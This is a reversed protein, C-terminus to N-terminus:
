LISIIACTARVSRTNLCLNYKIIDLNLYKIHIRSSQYDSTYIFNTSNESDFMTHKNIQSKKYMKSCVLITRGVFMYVMYRLLKM